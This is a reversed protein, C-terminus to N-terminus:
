INKRSLMLLEGDFNNKERGKAPIDEEQM